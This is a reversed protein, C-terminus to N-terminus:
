PASHARLREELQEPTPEVETRWPANPDRHTAMWLSGTWAIRHTSGWTSRLRELTLEPPEWTQGKSDEHPGSHGAELLCTRRMCSHDLHAEGCLPAVYPTSSPFPPTTTM